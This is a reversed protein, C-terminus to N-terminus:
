EAGRLRQVDGPCLEEIRVGHQQLAAHFPLWKSDVAQLIPTNDPHTRAVAVFKRDDKDLDKLAPDVPFEAFETKSGGISTISVWDCKTKKNQLIWRLFRDGTGPEGSSRLNNKYENLLLWGYDLVLKDEGRMIGRIRSICTLVCDRSAQPSEKRGNAVKPVNTDVVVTM